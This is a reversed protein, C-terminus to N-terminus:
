DLQIKEEMRDYIDHQFLREFLTECDRQLYEAITGKILVSAELGFLLSFKMEFTSFALHTM